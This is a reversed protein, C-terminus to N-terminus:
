ARQTVTIPTTLGILLAGLLPIAPIHWLFDLGSHVALAVLGAAVGAWLQPSSAATRGQWVTRTIAALLALLLLFGVIGLQVLVQLYENHAYRSIVTRGDATTWVLAIRDPGVGTLPHKAALRVAAGAAGARDASVVSLRPSIAQVSAALPGAQLLVVVAVAGIGLLVGVRARTSLYPLGVATALGVALAGVALIPRAPQSTPISPVLGALAIVAGAAPGAAAHLLPRPGLLWGLVVAGALLALAGGRSLTAGVGVLLLCAAGAALPSRPQTVLRAMAVLALPVLLGAAANAYTLTTAARWLGQDAIAWPRVHWAVGVWGSVAALAGIAVMAAAVVDRESWGLRGAVLLVGTLGALVAVTPGAAALDGAVTASIATWAALAACAVLLAPQLDAKSWRHTWLAAMVAALLMGAVLRQGAAYYAGQGVVAAALAVILLLGHVPLGATAQPAQQRDQSPVVISV